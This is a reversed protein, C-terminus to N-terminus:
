PKEGANDAAGLADAALKGTLFDIEALAKHCGTLATAGGIEYNFVSMQNDLLTLFDVRNVKYAALSAELTLRAAPLIDREYLRLSKLNQQVTAIQHHLQNAVVHQQSHLTDLAQERMAQAEAIRPEIKSKRWVPLNMAVTLSVLDSRKMGLPSNDRQGYAFKVDFDPQSEKRALELGRESRSLLSQLALLQPRQRLALEQLTELVLPSDGPPPLASLKLDPNGHRALLRGIEGEAMERERGLKLLEDLMKTFQTQAKLVDAQTGQGVTYRSEAVKLIQGLAARNKETLRQSETALTLDYYALKLDRVVRNVTERYGQGISDADRAAVDRRLGRKGSFPFKQSLGIMKMTMDERDFRPTDTPLNLVGAELMPDELAGAPAIRYQAAQKEKFAAQIEPNNRVAEGVLADLSATGPLVSRAEARSANDAALVPLTQGVTLLLLAAGLGVSFHPCTGRAVRPVPSAQDPAFSM